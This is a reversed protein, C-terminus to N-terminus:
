LFFVSTSSQPATYYPARRVSQPPRCPVADIRPNENWKKEGIYCLRRETERSLSQHNLTTSSGQILVTHKNRKKRSQKAAWCGGNMWWKASPPQRCHHHNAARFGFQSCHSVMSSGNCLWNLSGAVFKRKELNFKRWNKHLRDTSSYLEQVAPSIQNAIIIIQYLGNVTTPLSSKLHQSWLNEQQM